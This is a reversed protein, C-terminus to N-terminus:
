TYSGGGANDLIPSGQPTGADIDSAPRYVSLVTQGYPYSRALALDGHRDPPRTRNRHELMLTGGPSVIRNRGLSELVAPTGPFDYPAGVFVLDYRKQKATIVEVAALADKRYVDVEDRIGLATVNRVVLRVDLDVFDVHAAGRSLAEIGVSGTGCFIDLVRAGEIRNQLINFIASRVKQSAPRLASTSVYELRRGRLRGAIVHM